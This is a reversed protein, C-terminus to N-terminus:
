SRFGHIPIYILEGKWLTAVIASLFDLTLLFSFFPCFLFEEELGLLLNITNVLFGVCAQNFHLCFETGFSTVNYQLSKRFQSNLGKWCCWIDFVFKSTWIFSWFTNNLHHSTSIKGTIACNRRVKWKLKEREWPFNSRQWKLSSNIDKAKLLHLFSEFM